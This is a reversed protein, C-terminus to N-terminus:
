GGNREGRRGCLREYMQRLVQEEAERRADYWARGARGMRVLRDRDSLAAGLCRALSPPHEPEVIWGTEGNEVYEHLAGSPAAIVTKGFFYAAPILASQTAGMYPLVLLSCRQFLDLAEDDDILRNRVETGPPLAGVWSRALRGQGALVLRVDPVRNGDMMAWAAILHGVGKYRELRGFFLAFPEYTVERALHEARGLWTHGLFLHLLPTCTVREAAVGLRMLREAYCAGHILIQDALRLVRRNWIYLLSGYLSGPHPDLDHLTHVVPIGARRLRRLLYLNWLHPGTVHVVDPRVGEVAEVADRASPARLVGEPSFGTNRTRV